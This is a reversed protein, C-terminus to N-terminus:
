QAIYVGMINEFYSFDKINPYSELNESTINEIVIDHLQSLTNYYEYMEETLNQFLCMTTWAAIMQNQISEDWGNNKVLKRCLEFTNAIAKDKNTM